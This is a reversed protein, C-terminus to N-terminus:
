PRLIRYGQWQLPRNTHHENHCERCLLRANFEVTQGGQSVPVIHDLIVQGKKGCLSCVAGYKRILKKKLAEQGKRARKNARDRKRKCDLCLYPSCRKQFATTTRRKCAVCTYKYMNGRRGRGCSPRAFRDGPRRASTARRPGTLSWKGATGASGPPAM